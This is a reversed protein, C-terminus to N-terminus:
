EEGRAADTSEGVVEFENSGCRCGDRSGIPQVAGDAAIRAAYVSGCETCVAMRREEEGM